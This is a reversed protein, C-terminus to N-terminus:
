PLTLRSRIQAALWRWNEEFSALTERPWRLRRLRFASWAIAIASVLFVGGGASVLHEWPARFLPALVGAILMVISAILAITAPIAIAIAIVVSVIVERTEALSLELELKLLHALRTLLGESKPVHPVPLEHVTAMVCRFSAINSGDGSTTHRCRRCFDAFRQSM